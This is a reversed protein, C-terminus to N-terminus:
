WINDNGTDITLTAGEMVRVLGSLLYSKDATLTMDSTINGSLTIDQAMSLSSLLLLFSFVFKRM